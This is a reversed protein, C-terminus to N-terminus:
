EADKSPPLPKKRAIEKKLLVYFSIYKEEIKFAFGTSCVCFAAQFKNWICSCQVIFMDSCLRSMHIYMICLCAFCNANFDIHKLKDYSVVTCPLFFCMNNQNLRYNCRTGHVSVGQFFCDSHGQVNVKGKKLTVLFYYNCLFNM